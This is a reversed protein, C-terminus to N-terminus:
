PDRPLTILQVLPIGSVLVPFVPLSAPNSSLPIYSTTTSTELFCRSIYTPLKLFFGSSFISIQSIHLFLKFFFYCSLSTQFDLLWFFLIVLVGWFYVLFSLLFHSKSMKFPWIISITFPIFHQWRAFLILISVHKNSNSILFFDHGWQLCIWLTMTLPILITQSLLHLWQPLLYKIELFKTEPLFFDAYLLYAISIQQPFYFHIPMFFGILFKLLFSSESTPFSTYERKSYFIVVWELLRVQLIGHVSFGPTSCDM